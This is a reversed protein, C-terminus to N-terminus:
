RLTALANKLSTTAKAHMKDAQKDSMKRWRDDGEPAMVMLMADYIENGKNGFHTTFLEVFIEEQALGKPRWKDNMYSKIYKAFSKATMDPSFGQKKSKARRKQESRKSRETGLLNELRRLQGDSLKTLDPYSFKPTAEQLEVEIVEKVLQNLQKTSIKM